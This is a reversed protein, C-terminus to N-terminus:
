EKERALFRQALVLAAFDDLPVPPTQLSLPLLKKLGRPPFKEWYLPRAELTSGTEDIVVITANHAQAISELEARLAASSTAHGLVVIRADYKRLLTEILQATEARAAISQELSEGTANVVAVGCKERGPDIAILAAGSLNEM